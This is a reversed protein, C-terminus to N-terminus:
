RLSPRSRALRCFSLASIVTFLLATFQWSNLLYHIPEAPAVESIIQYDRTGCFDQRYTSLSNEKIIPKSRIARGVSYFVPEKGHIDLWYKGYGLSEMIDLLRVLSGYTAGSVFSVQIGASSTDRALAPVNAEFTTIALFDNLPKGTL